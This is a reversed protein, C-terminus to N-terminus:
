TFTVTRDSTIVADILQGLGVVAFAPDVTVADREYRAREGDDLLGRRLAAAICIALEFGHTNALARWAALYDTEDQPQVVSSLANYVGDHYFFVRHVSHGAAYLAEIFRIASIAGPATGAHSNVVIAYIMPLLSRHTICSWWACLAPSSILITATADSAM